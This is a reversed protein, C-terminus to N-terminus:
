ESCSTEDVQEARTEATATYTDPLDIVGGPILASAAKLFPNAASPEYTFSVTIRDGVSTAGPAMSMSVGQAPPYSTQEKVAAIWAACDSVGVAALRAGERAAHAASIQGWLTLGFGMIGAVLFLLLPVILAFEVAAAGSEPDRRRPSTLVRRFQEM